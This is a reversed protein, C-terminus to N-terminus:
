EDGISLTQMQKLPVYIITMTPPAITEVRYNADVVGHERVVFTEEGRALYAEWVGADLMKGLYTFPLPPATPKPPPAPVIVVPPPPPPNWSHKGFSTTSVVDPELLAGGRPTLTLIVPEPLMAAARATRDRVAATVPGIRHIPAPPLVGSAPSLLATPLANRLAQFAPWGPGNWNQAVGVGVGVVATAILLAFAGRRIFRARIPAPAASPTPDPQTPVVLGTTVLRPLRHVEQLIDGAINMRSFSKAATQM